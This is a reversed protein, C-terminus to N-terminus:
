RIGVAQVSAEISGDRETELGPGEAILDANGAPAFKLSNCEFTRV